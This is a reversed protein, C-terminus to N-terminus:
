STLESLVIEMHHQPSPNHEHLDEQWRKRKTWANHPANMKVSHKKAKLELYSDLGM